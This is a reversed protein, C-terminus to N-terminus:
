HWTSNAIEHPSPSLSVLICSAIAEMACCSNNDWGSCCCSNPALEASFSPITCACGSKKTTERDRRKVCIISRRKVSSMDRTLWKDWILRSVGNVRWPCRDNTEVVRCTLTLGFVHGLFSSLMLFSSVVTSLAVMAAALSSTSLLTPGKGAVSANSWGKWSADLAWSQDRDNWPRDVCGKGFSIASTSCCGM